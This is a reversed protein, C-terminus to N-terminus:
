DSLLKWSKAVGQATAQWPGSDMPNELCAYQLPKGNVEGLSRRSGPISDVDGANAPLNKKGSLWWSLGEKEIELVGEELRTVVVRDSRLSREWVPRQLVRRIDGWGVREGSWYFIWYYSIYEESLFM